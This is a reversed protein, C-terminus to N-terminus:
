YNPVEEMVANRMQLVLDYAVIHVVPNLSRQSRYELALHFSQM